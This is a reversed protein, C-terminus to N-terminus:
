HKAATESARESRAADAPEELREYRVGPFIIIAAGDAPPRRGKVSAERPSFSLVSAMAAVGEVRDRLM